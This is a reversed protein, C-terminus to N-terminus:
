RPKEMLFSGIVLADLPSTWFCEIADRPTCVIPEGRTNFSTNVLVPVGTLADFETLLAHLLPHQQADVTQVRATGDIHRVAPIREGREPLVDYVFLMFPARLPERRGGSFWEHAKAELVVPAVPRFDERDKIRNLRQQMGPDIPSALISRAGLARPGFEMRGQFWGIVRNAALLAATQAAVDSLKRYPLQAEQLFAEIAADSYSPGLYAHEMRWDGRAGRMRFDTWLAAGLATGADGAAPQVWVDDFPGRDRIKANMVCNLAVGGAMALQREGSQAALWEVAQLTTEELVLQLAHAVDCHQPTIPGGRERAPGFLAVLDREVTEYRGEGGYRVLGRMPEAYVPKGYSALAMVKYEDSSHLFGLYRTVREYLLGLSHPLDVQGLRRYSRGDFAGYSTTAREGRGDMTMVACHDFPAALFASAEHAFHHEVFHWRFPGDHTVGRFRRQLHHPAGGALQRPANVISSLFLPHWPSVGDAPAAHASPELPLTLSPQAGHRDLELWPDYSYAVHQVDALAIGAEALCYDIAHYPLEWTSFPVPRKAHKVHTFREEEAAAVVVGDRVLCAASDHFAANIGLTHIPESM